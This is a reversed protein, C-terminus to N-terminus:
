SHQSLRLRAEKRCRSRSNAGDERRGARRGRGVSAGAKQPASALTPTQWWRGGKM